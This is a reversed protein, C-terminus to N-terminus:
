FEKGLLGGKILVLYKEERKDKLKNKVLITDMSHM